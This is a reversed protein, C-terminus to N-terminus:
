SKKESEKRFIEAITREALTPLMLRVNCGPAHCVLQNGCMGWTDSQVLFCENELTSDPIVDMFGLSHALRYVHVRGLNDKLPHTAALELFIKTPVYAYDVRGGERSIYSSAKVLNDQASIGTDWIMTCGALRTRDVNRNVGLFNDFVTLEEPIWDQRTLEKFAANTDFQILTSRTANQQGVFFSSRGMPSGFIVPVMRGPVSTLRKYFPSDRENM